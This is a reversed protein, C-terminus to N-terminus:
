LKRKKWQNKPLFHSNRRGDPFRLRKTKDQRPCQFHAFSSSKSWSQGKEMCWSKTSNGLPRQSCDPISSSLCCSLFLLSSRSRFIYQQMKGVQSLSFHKRCHQPQPKGAAPQLLLMLLLAKGKGKGLVVEADENRSHKCITRHAVLSNLSCQFSNCGCEPHTGLWNQVLHEKL